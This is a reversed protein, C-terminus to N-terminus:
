SLRGGRRVPCFRSIIQREACSLWSRASSPLRPAAVYSQLTELPAAAALTYDLDGDSWSVFSWEALERFQAATITPGERFDSKRTVLLHVLEDKTEGPLKERWFCALFAPRGNVDLVSCGYSKLGRLGPPIKFEAPAGKAVLWERLEAPDQSHKPLPTKSAFFDVVRPALLAFSPEGTVRAPRTWWFGVGAFALLAAALALAPKRWAFPREPPGATEATKEVASGQRLIEALKEPSLARAEYHERIQKQFPSM